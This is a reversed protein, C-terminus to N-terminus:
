NKVSMEIHMRHTGCVPLVNTACHMRDLIWVLKVFWWSFLVFYVFRIHVVVVFYLFDFLLIIIFWSVIQKCLFLWFCFCINWRSLFFFYAIKTTLSSFFFLPSLVLGFIYFFIADCFYQCKKWWSKKQKWMEWWWCHRLILFLFLISLNFIVACTAFLINIQISCFVFIHLIKM